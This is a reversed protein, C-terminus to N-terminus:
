PPAPAAAPPAKAAPAAPPTGGAALPRFVLEIRGDDTVKGALVLPIPLGPREIRTGITGQARFAEVREQGLIEALLGLLQETGPRASSAPRPGQDFLLRPPEGSVLKLERAEREYLVYFFRDLQAM